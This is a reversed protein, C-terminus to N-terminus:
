AQYKEYNQSEFRYDKGAFGCLQGGLSIGICFTKLTGPISLQITEALRALLHGMVMSTTSARVYNSGLINDFVFTTLEYFPFKFLQCLSTEWSGLDKTQSKSSVAGYGVTAGIIRRDSRRYRFICAGIITLM